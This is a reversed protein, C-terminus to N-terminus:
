LPTTEKPIEEKPSEVPTETKVSDQTSQGKPTPENVFVFEDTVKEQEM